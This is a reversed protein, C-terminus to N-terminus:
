SIIMNNILFESRNKKRINGSPATKILIDKAKIYMEETIANKEFLHRNIALKIEMKALNINENTKNM